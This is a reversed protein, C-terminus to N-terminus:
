KPLTETTKQKQSASKLINEMSFPTMTQNAVLTQACPPLRGAALLRMAPSLSALTSLQLLSNHNINNLINGNEPETLTSAPNPTVPTQTPTSKSPTCQLSALLTSAVNVVAANMQNQASQTNLFMQPFIADFRYKTTQLQDLYAYFYNEMMQSNTQLDEDTTQTLHLNTPVYLPYSQTNLSDAVISEFSQGSSLHFSKSASGNTESCVSTLSIVNRIQVELLKVINVHLEVFDLISANSPGNQLGMERANAMSSTSLTPATGNSANTSPPYSEVQQSNKLGSVLNVEDFVGSNVSSSRSNLGNQNSAGSSHFLSNLGPYAPPGSLNLQSQTAVSSLSSM